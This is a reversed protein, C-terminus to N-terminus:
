MLPDEYEGRPANPSSPPVVRIRFRTAAERTLNEREDFLAKYVKGFTGRLELIYFRLARDPADELMNQYFTLLAKLDYVAQFTPERYFYLPHTCLWDLEQLPEQLARQIQHVGTVDTKNDVAMPRLAIKCLRVVEDVRLLHRFCRLLYIEISNAGTPLNALPSRGETDKIAKRLQEVGFGSEGYDMYLRRVVGRLERVNGPWHYSKMADLVADPLTAGESGVAEQWHYNALAPIEEPHEHLSPTEIIMAGRLRYLLDERFLHQEALFALDRSTAAIVRTSVKVSTTSGLPRVENDEIVRLLKAQHHVALDAIEDLFLTGDQAQQWLGKRDTRAGTFAEATHGFLESELLHEPLAGVNLPVFQGRLPRGEEARRKMTYDHIGKAVLEKGTGSDGLILVTCNETQAARMIKQRVLHFAPHSGLFRRCLEPPVEIDSLPCRSSRAGPRRPPTKLEEGAAGEPSRRASPLPSPFRNAADDWLEKFIAESTAIIFVNPHAEGEAAQLLAAISKKASGKARYATRITAIAPQGLLTRSLQMAHHKAGCDSVVDRANSLLGDLDGEAVVYAVSSKPRDQAYKRIAADTLQDRSSILTGTVREYRIADVAM